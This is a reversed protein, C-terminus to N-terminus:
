APSSPAFDILELELRERGQWWDTKLHYVIDVYSVLDDARSGLGFGVASWVSSGDRLKVRLHRGDAGMLRVDVVQVRRSLFTPHPNGVGLPELLSVFKILRGQIEKLSIQVDIHITPHLDVSQLQEEAISTLREEMSDLNENPIVFGAAQAHGGYRLFLDSCQRLATIIDFEPISRASARSVEPGIAMVIAPRYFEQVLKGAALGVVGAQFHRNGTIFISRDAQSVTVQERVQEMVQETQERRERNRAELEQALPRAEASTTATLLRYSTMAHDVRGAANIRPGLVFSISETNLTGPTLGSLAILERLGPKETENLVQLGRKVLYRNEGDLPAMDAVSGLAVLDLPSEDEPQGLSDRLVQMLRYCVGVAALHPYPYQSDTRKPDIVALAPPIRPPPSHHDTVIVDIGIDRAAVVEEFSSIGCDATLILSAGMDRLGMLGQISLGHGEETRHPIYPTTRGGLASIGQHLLATATVGDADFDGYIAILERGKIARALRTIAPEIDPLLSPDSLSSSDPSLFSRLQKLDTIGRNYALQATAYPIDGLARLCESTPPSSLIWRRQNM